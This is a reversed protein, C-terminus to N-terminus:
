SFVKAVQVCENKVSDGLNHFENGRHITSHAVDSDKLSGRKFNECYHYYYDLGKSSGSWHPGKHWYLVKWFPSGLSWENLYGLM